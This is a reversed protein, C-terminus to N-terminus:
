TMLDFIKQCFVSGRKTMRRGDASIKKVKVLIEAMAINQKRLEDVEKQKVALQECLPIDSENEGM